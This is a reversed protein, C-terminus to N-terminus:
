LKFAATANRLLVFSSHFWLCEISHMHARTLKMDLQLTNDITLLLKICVFMNEIILCFQWIVTCKGEEINQYAM